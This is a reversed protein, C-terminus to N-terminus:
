RIDYPRAAKYNGSVWLRLKRFSNPIDYGTYELAGLFGFFAIALILSTLSPTYILILIAFSARGDVLFFRTMLASYQWM